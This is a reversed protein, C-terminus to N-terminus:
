HSMMSRDCREGTSFGVSVHVQWLIHSNYLLFSNLKCLLCLYKHTFINETSGLYSFLLIPINSKSNQSSIQLQSNGGSSPSHVYISVLPSLRQIWKLVLTQNQHKMKFLVYQLWIQSIPINLMNINSWTKFTINDGWINSVLNFTILITWWLTNWMSCIIIFPNTFFFFFDLINSVTLGDVIYLHM